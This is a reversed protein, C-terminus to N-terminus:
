AEWKQVASARRSRLDKPAARTLGLVPRGPPAPGRSPAGDMRQAAAAPAAIEPASPPCGM